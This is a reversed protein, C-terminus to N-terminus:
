TLPEYPIEHQTLFRMVMKDWQEELTKDLSFITYSIGTTLTLLQNQYKINIFLGSVDEDKLTTAAVSAITKAQNEPSLLLVFRFSSPTKKGRIMELCTKKILSFPLFRLGTLKQEGLEEESYFGKTIQGSLSLSGAGQIQAEQLLFNDFVEGILLKNMFDKVNTLELAIM